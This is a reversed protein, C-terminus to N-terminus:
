SGYACPNTVIANCRAFRLIYGYNTLGPQWAAQLAAIYQGWNGLPNFAPSTRDLNVESQWFVDGNWMVPDVGTKSGYSSRPKPMRRNVVEPHWIFIDEYPANQYAPNPIAMNGNTTAVSIYYPIPASWGSGTWTYRPMRNDICHMFGAYSGDIGWSKLLTAEKGDGMDAFRFDQRTSPDEKIIDRHAEMSMLATFQPAGNSQSYANEGAGDDILRNYVIDLVTQVPRTTPLTNPMTTLGVNETLSENGIMKHGSFFFYREKDKVDWEDVVQDVFNKYLKALQDKADWARRLDEFCIRNSWIMELQANWSYQTSAPNLDQPDPVCNNATGNEQAVDTWSSGGTPLSRQWVLTQYNYGMGEPLVGKRMLASIRGRVRQQQYIMGELRSADQAFYNDLATGAM